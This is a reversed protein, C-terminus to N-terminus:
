GVVVLRGTRNTTFEVYVTDATINIRSPFFMEGDSDFVQAILNETGLGHNYSVSSVNTFTTTRVRPLELQSRFHAPTSKRLYDDSTNQTWIQGITPNEGNGSSANFYTGFIYNGYINGSSDRLVIRDATAGTTATITASNAQSTITSANGNVNGHFVGDNAIYSVDSGNRRFQVIRNSDQDAVIYWRNSHYQIKGQTGPDGTWNSTANSRIDNNTITITGTMTGGALPLYNSLSSAAAYYSGHQGDLLDADLGSSAGDNGAHWVTNGRITVAGDAGNIKFDNQGYRGMVVTYDAFAEIVPLGSITNVSFISDTMDDTV